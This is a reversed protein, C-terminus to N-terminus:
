VVNKFATSDRLAYGKGIRRSLSLRGVQRPWGLLYNLPIRGFYGFCEPKPILLLNYYIAWFDLVVDWGETEM